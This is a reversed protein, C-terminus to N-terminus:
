TTEAAARALNMELLIALLEQDEIIANLGYADLVAADLREHLQRLWAPPQNYLNTLTRGELEEVLWGFFPRVARCAIRITGRM